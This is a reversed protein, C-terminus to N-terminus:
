MDENSGDIVLFFLVGKSLARNTFLDLSLDSVLFWYKIYCGHLYSDTWLEGLYYKEMYICELKVHVWTGLYMSTWMVSYM